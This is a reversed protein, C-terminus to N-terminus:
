ILLMVILSHKASKWLQFILRKNNEELLKAKCVKKTYGWEDNEVREM